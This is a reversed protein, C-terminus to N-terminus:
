SNYNCLSCVSTGSMFVVWWFSADQKFLRIEAPLFVGLLLQWQFIKLCKSQNRSLLSFVRSSADIMLSHAGGRGGGWKISLGPHRIQASGRTCAPYSPPSRNTPNIKAASSRMQNGIVSLLAASKRHITGDNRRM